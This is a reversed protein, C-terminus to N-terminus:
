FILEDGGERDPHHKGALIKYSLRIDETTCDGTLDLIWYLDADDDYEKAPQETNALEM